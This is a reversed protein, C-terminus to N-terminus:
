VRGQPRQPYSSLFYNIGKRSPVRLILATPPLGARLEPYARTRHRLFFPTILTDEPPAAAHIAFIVSPWAISRILPRCTGKRRPACSFSAHPSSPRAYPEHLFLAALPFGLTRPSLLFLPFLAKPSRVLYGGCCFFNWGSMSAYRASTRFPVVFAYLPSSWLLRSSFFPHGRSGPAYSIPEFCFFSSDGLRLCVPCCGGQRERETSLERPHVLFFTSQPRQPSVTTSLDFSAGPFCVLIIIFNLRSFSPGSPM